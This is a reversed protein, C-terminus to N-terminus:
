KKKWVREKASPGLTTVKESQNGGPNKGDKSLPSHVVKLTDGGKDSSKEMVQVITGPPLSGAKDCKAPLIKVAKVPKGGNKEFIEFLTDM